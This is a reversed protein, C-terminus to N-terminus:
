DNSVKQANLSKQPGPMHFANSVTETEYFEYDFM